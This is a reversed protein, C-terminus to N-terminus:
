RERFYHYVYKTETHQFGVAKYLQRAAINNDQTGVFISDKHSFKNQLHSLMGRGVGRGRFSPDVGILDIVVSNNKSQFLIFGAITKGIKSVIIKKGCDPSTIWKTKIRVSWEKPLRIDRNFRDNEFWKAFKVLSTRLSSVSSITYDINEIVQISIKLSSNWCFKFQENVKIFGLGQLYDEMCKDNNRIKATVFLSKHTQLMDSFTSQGKLNINFCNFNLCNSLWDDYIVHLNNM